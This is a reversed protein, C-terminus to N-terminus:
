KPSLLILMLSHTFHNTGWKFEATLFHEINHWQRDAAVGTPEILEM